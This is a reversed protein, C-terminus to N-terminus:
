KRIIVASVILVGTTIAENATVDITDAAAMVIPSAMQPAKNVAVDLVQSALNLAGGTQNTLHVAVWDPHIVEGTLVMDALDMGSSVTVHDGYRAGAIEIENTETTDDAVEPANWILRGSLTTRCHGTADVKLANGFYDPDTGYGLDITAATTGATEVTAWSAM